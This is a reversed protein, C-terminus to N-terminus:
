PAATITVNSVTVDFEFILAFGGKGEIPSGGTNEIDTMAWEGGQGLVGGQGRDDRGGHIDAALINMLSNIVTFADTLRGVPDVSGSWVRIVCHLGYSETRRLSPPQRMGASGSLYGNIIQGTGIPDGISIFNNDVSGGTPRSVYVGLNLKPNQAAVTNLHDALRAVAGPVTSALGPSTM